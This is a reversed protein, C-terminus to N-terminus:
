VGEGTSIKTLWEQEAGLISDAYSKAETLVTQGYTYAAKASPYQTDTSNATISTSKNQSLEAPFVSSVWSLNARISIRYLNAGDVYTYTLATATGTAESTTKSRVYKVTTDSDTATNLIYSNEDAKLADFQAQTITGSSGTLEIYYISSTPLDVAASTITTTDSLTVTTTLKNNAIANSIATVKTDTSSPLTVTTDVTSDDQLTITITMTQGSISSSISKIDEDHWGLERLEYAM